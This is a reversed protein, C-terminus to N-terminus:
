EVEGVHLFALSKQCCSPSVISLLFIAIADLSKLTLSEFIYFYTILGQILKM